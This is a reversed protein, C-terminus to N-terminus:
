LILKETWPTIGILRHMQKKLIPVTGSSGLPGHCENHKSSFYWTMANLEKMWMYMYGLAVLQPLEDSPLAM